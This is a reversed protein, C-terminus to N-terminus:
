YTLRAIHLFLIGGKMNIEPFIGEVVAEKLLRQIEKECDDRMQIIEKYNDATLV